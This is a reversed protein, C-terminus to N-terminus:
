KSNEAVRSAVRSAVEAEDARTWVENTCLGRKCESVELSDHDLLTLRGDEGRRKGPTYVQGGTWLDGVQRFRKLVVADVEAKDGAWVITGCLKATRKSCPAVEVLRDGGSTQWFGTPGSAGGDQASAAGAVPAMMAGLALVAGFCAAMAGPSLQMDTMRKNSTKM